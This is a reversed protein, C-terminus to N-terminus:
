RVEVRGALPPAAAARGADTTAGLVRLGLGIM